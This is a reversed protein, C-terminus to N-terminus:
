LNLMINNKDDITVIKKCMEIPINIEASMKIVLEKMNPVNDNSIMRLQIANFLKEEDSSLSSTSLINKYIDFCESNVFLYCLYAMEENNNIIPKLDFEKKPGEVHWDPDGAHVFMCTHKYINLYHDSKKLYKALEYLNSQGYWKLPPKAKKMKELTEKAMEMNSNIKFDKLINREITENNPDKDYENKSRINRLYILRSDTYYLWARNQTERELIYQIYFNVEIFSRLLLMPTEIIGMLLSQECTKHLIVTHRLFAALIASVHSESVKPRLLLLKQGLASIIRTTDHEYSYKLANRIVTEEMKFYDPTPFVTAM